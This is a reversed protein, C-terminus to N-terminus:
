YCMSLVCYIFNSFFINNQLSYYFNLSHLFFYKYMKLHYSYLEAFLIHAFERIILFTVLRKFSKTESEPYVVRVVYDVHVFSVLREFVVLHVDHTWHVCWARVLRIGFLIDNVFCVCIYIIM